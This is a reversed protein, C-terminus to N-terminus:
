KLIMISCYVINFVANIIIHKYISEQFDKRMTKNRIILITILNLCIGLFCLIPALIVVLIFEALKIIYLIDVDNYVSKHSNILIM